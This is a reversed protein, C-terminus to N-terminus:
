VWFEIDSCASCTLQMLSNEDIVLREANYFIEFEVCQAVGAILRGDLANFKFISLVIGYLHTALAQSILVSYVADFEMQTNKHRESSYKMMVLHVFFIKMFSRSGFVGNIILRCYCTDSTIVSWILCIALLNQCLVFDLNQPFLM